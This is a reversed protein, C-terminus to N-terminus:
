AGSWLLCRNTVVHPGAGLLKASELVLKPMFHPRGCRDVLTPSARPRCGVTVVIVNKALINQTNKFRVSGSELLTFGAHMFFVLMACILMWITDLCENYDAITNDLEGELSAIAAVQSASM